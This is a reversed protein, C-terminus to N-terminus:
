GDKVEEYEWGLVSWGQKETEELFSKEDELPVIISTVQGKRNIMELKVMSDEKTLFFSPTVSPCSLMRHRSLVRQYQITM